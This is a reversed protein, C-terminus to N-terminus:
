CRKEPNPSKEYSSRQLSQSLWCRSKPNTKTKSPTQGYCSRQLGQILWCRRKPNPTEWGNRKNLTEADGKQTQGYPSRQLGPDVLMEKATQPKEARAAERRAAGPWERPCQLFLGRGQQRHEIHEIDM